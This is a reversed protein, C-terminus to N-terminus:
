VFAATRASRSASHCLESETAFASPWGVSAICTSTVIPTGRGSRTSLSCTNATSGCPVPVTLTTSPPRSILLSSPVFLVTTALAAATTRSSTGTFTGPRRRHGELADDGFEAGAVIQMAAVVGLRRHARHLVCDMVARQGQDAAKAHIRLHHLDLHRDPHLLGRADIERRDLRGQRMALDLDVGDLAPEINGIIISAVGRDDRGGGDGDPDVEAILGRERLAPSPAQACLAFAPSPTWRTYPTTRSSRSLRQVTYRFPPASTNSNALFPTNTTPKRAIQSEPKRWDTRNPPLDDAHPSAICVPTSVRRM